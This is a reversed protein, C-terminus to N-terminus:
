AAHLRYVIFAAQVAPNHISQIKWHMEPGTLGIIHAVARVFAVLAEKPAPDSAGRLAFDMSEESLQNRIPHIFPVPIDLGSQYSYM